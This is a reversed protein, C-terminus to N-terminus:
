SFAQNTLLTYVEVQQQVTAAQTATLKRLYLLMQFYLDSEERIIIYLLLETMCAQWRGYKDQQQVTAAQTATLKRLYLLMQFYLDSEERM